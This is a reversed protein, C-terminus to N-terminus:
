ASVARRRLVALGAAFCAAGYAAIWLASTAPFALGFTYHQVWNAIRGLTEFPPLVWGIAKLWGWGLDRGAGQAFMATAAIGLLFQTELRSVTSLLFTLGGVLTFVLVAAVMAPMLPVAAFLTFPLLLVFLMPLFAAFRLGFAQAYYRSIDLPKSFLFRHFGHQTDESVIGRTALITGGGILVSTVKDFIDRIIFDLPLGQRHMVSFMPIAMVLAIGLMLVGQRAVFDRLQIRAYRGLRARSAPPAPDSLPYTTSVELAHAENPFDFDDATTAGRTTTRM